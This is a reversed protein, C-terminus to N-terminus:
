PKLGLARNQATEHDYMMKENRGALAARGIGAALLGSNLLKPHNKLLRKALLYGALDEAAGLALVGPRNHEGVIKTIAPNAEPIGHHMFNNTSAWDAAAGAVFAPTAIRELLSKKKDADPQATEDKAGLAALLTERDISDQFQDAM